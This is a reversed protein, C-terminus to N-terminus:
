HFKTLITDALRRADDVYEQRTTCAPPNVVCWTVGLDGLRRIEDVVVTADVDEEVGFSPLSFPQFCVDLPETRGIARAHEHMLDLRTTLDDLSALPPTRVARGL